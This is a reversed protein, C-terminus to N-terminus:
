IEKLCKSPLAYGNKQENQWTEGFNFVHIEFHTKNRILKQTKLFSMLIAKPPLGVITKRLRTMLRPLIPGFTLWSISWKWTMRIMTLSSLGMFIWGVFFSRLIFKLFLVYLTIVNQYFERFYFHFSMPTVSALLSILLGLELHKRFHKWWFDWQHPLSQMLSRILVLITMITTFPRPRKVSNDIQHIIFITHHPIM